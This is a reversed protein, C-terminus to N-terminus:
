TDTDDAVNQGNGKNQQKNFLDQLPHFLGSQEVAKGFSKFFLCGAGLRLFNSLNFKQAGEQKHPNGQGAGAGPGACQDDGQQMHVPFFGADGNQQADQQCGGNHAHNGIQNGPDDPLESGEM